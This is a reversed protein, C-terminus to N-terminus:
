FLSSYICVQLFKYRAYSVRTFRYLAQHVFSMYCCDFTEYILFGQVRCSMLQNNSLNIIGYLHAKLVNITVSLLVVSFAVIAAYTNTILIFSVTQQRQLTVINFAINALMIQQISHSLHAYSFSGKVELKKRTQEKILCLSKKVLLTLSDRVNSIKNL